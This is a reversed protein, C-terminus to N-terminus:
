HVLRYYISGSCWFFWTTPSPATFPAWTSFIAYLGWGDTLRRKVRLSRHRQPNFVETRVRSSLLEDDPALTSQLAPNHYDVSRYLIRAPYDRIEQNLDPRPATLDVINSPFTSVAFNCNLSSPQGTVPDITDLVIGQLSFHRYETPLGGNQDYTSAILHCGSDIVIGGVDIAKIMSSQVVGLSGGAPTSTDNFHGPELSAIEMYVNSSVLGVGPGQISMTSAFNGWQWKQSGVRSAARSGARRRFRGRPAASRRFRRRYM